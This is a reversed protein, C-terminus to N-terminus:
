LGKFIDLFTGALGSGDPGSKKDGRNEPDDAQDGGAGPGQGGYGGGLRRDIEERVLRRITELDAPNQEANSRTEGGPGRGPLAGSGATKDRALKEEVAANIFASRSKHGDQGIQKDVEALIAKSVTISIAVYDKEQDSKKRAM